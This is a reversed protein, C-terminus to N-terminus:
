YTEVELINQNIDRRTVRIRIPGQPPQAPPTTQPTKAQLAAIAKMLQGMDSKVNAISTELPALDVPQAIAAPAEDEDDEDDAEDPEDQERTELATIKAKLEDATRRLDALQALVVEMEGSLRFELARKDTRNSM